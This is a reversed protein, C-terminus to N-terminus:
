ASVIVLLQQKIRSVLGELIEMWGLCFELMEGFQFKDMREQKSGDGM